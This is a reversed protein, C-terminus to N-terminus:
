PEQVFVERIGEAREGAAPRAIERGVFPHGEGPGANRIRQWDAEDSREPVHEHIQKAVGCWFQRLLQLPQAGPLELLEVAFGGLPM